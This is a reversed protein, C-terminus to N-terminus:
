LANLQLFHVLFTYPRFQWSSYTMLPNRWTPRVDTEQEEEGEAEEPKELEALAQADEEEEDLDVGSLEWGVYKFPEQSFV